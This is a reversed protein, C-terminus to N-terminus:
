KHDGEWERYIEWWIQEPTKKTWLSYAEEAADRIAVSPDKLTNVDPGYRCVSVEQVTRDWLRERSKRISVYASGLSASRVHYYYGEPLVPAGLGRTEEMTM